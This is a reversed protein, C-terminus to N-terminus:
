LQVLFPAVVLGLSLALSLLSIARGRAYAESGVADKAEPLGFLVFDNDTLRPLNSM